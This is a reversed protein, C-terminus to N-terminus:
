PATVTRLFMLRSMTAPSSTTDEDARRAAALGRQQTLDRAEVLRGGARDRDVTAIDGSHGGGLPAQGHHKLAVRQIRVHRHALVHGKAKFVRMQGLRLDFAADGLGGAHQLDALKQLTAGALEGTALALAHRDPARNHAIGRGEQEVLRQGIEVRLQAHGHAGLEGGQV